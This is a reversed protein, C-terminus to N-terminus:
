RGGDLIRRAEEPTLMPPGGDPGSTMLAEIAALRGAQTYRAKLQELISRGTTHPELDFEEYGYETRVPFRMREGPGMLRRGRDLAEDLERERRTVWRESAGRAARVEVPGSGSCCYLTFMHSGRLTQFDHERRTCLEQVLEYFPGTPLVVQVLEDGKRYCEAARYFIRQLVSERPTTAPKPACPGRKACVHYGCKCPADGRKAADVRTNLAERGGLLLLHNVSAAGHLGCPWPQWCGGVDCARSGNSCKRM